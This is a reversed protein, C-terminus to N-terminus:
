NDTEDKSDGKKSEMVYDPLDKHLKRSQRCAKLWQKHEIDARYKDVASRIDTFDQDENNQLIINLADAVYGTVRDSCGGDYTTDTGLLYRACALLIFDRENDTM